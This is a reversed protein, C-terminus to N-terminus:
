APWIQLIVVQDSRAIRKRLHIIVRAQDSAQEASTWGMGPLRMVDSIGGAAAATVCALRPRFKCAGFRVTKGRIPADKM